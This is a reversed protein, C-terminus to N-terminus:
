ELVSFAVLLCKLDQEFFSLVVEECDLFRLDVPM